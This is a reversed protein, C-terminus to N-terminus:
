VQCSSLKDKLESRHELASMSTCTIQDCKAPVVLTMGNQGISTPLIVQSILKIVCSFFKIYCQM